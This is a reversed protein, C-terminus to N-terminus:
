LFGRAITHSAHADQQRPGLRRRRATSSVGAGSRKAELSAPKRLRPDFGEAIRRKTRWDAVSFRRAPWSTPLAQAPLDRADAMALGAITHNGGDRSLTDRAVKGSADTMHDLDRGARERDGVRGDRALTNDLKSPAM